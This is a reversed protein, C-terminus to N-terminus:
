QKQLKTVQKFMKIKHIHTHFLTTFGLCFFDLGIEKKMWRKIRFHYILINMFTVLREVASENKINIPNKQM